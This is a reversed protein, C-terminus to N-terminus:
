HWIKYPFLKWLCMRKNSVAWISGPAWILNCYEKDEADNTCIKDTRILWNSATVHTVHSNHWVATRASQRSFKSWIDKKVIKIHKTKNISTENLIAWVRWGYCIGLSVKGFAHDWPHYCGTAFIEWIFPDTSIGIDFCSSGHIFLVKHHLNHAAALHLVKDYPLYFAPTGWLSCAWSRLYPFRLQRSWGCFCQLCHPIYELGFICNKYEKQALAPHERDHSAPRRSLSGQWNWPGLPPSM